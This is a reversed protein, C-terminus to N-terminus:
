RQLQKGPANLILMSKITHQDLHFRVFQGAKLSIQYIHSENASIESEVPQGPTLTQPEPAAQARACVTLLGLILLLLPLRRILM